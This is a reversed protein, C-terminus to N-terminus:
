RDTGLLFKFTWIISINVLVAVKTGRSSIFDVTAGVAVVVLSDVVLDLELVIM